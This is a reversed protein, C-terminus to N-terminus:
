IPVTKSPPAATEDPLLGSSAAEKWTKATHTERMNYSSTAIGLDYGYCVIVSVRMNDAIKLSSIAKSAVRIAEPKLDDYKQNLTVTVILVVNERTGTSDTIFAHQETISAQTVEPLTQIEKQAAVMGPFSGQGIIQKALNTGVLAPVIGLICLVGAIIKHVHATVVTASESSARVVVTGTVLDHLLQKSRRNFLWLYVFAAFSGFVILSLLCSLAMMWWSPAFGDCAFYYGNLFVPVALVMTRALTRVVSPPKNKTDVVKLDLLRKGLTQGGKLASDQPLFYALFLLGGVLRGHPGLHIFGDRFAWAMLHAVASLLLMDIAFAGFRRWYGGLAVSRQPIAENNM